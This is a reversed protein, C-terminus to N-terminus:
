PAVADEPHLHRRSVGPLALEGDHGLPEPVGAHRREVHHHRRLVRLLAVVHLAHGAAVHAVPAPQVAAYEQVRQGIRRQVDLLGRRERLPAQLVDGQPQLDAALGARAVTGVRVRLGREVELVVHLQLEAPVALPGLLRDGRQGLVVSVAHQLQLVQQHGVRLRPRRRRRVQVGHLHLEGVAAIGHQQAEAEAADRRGLVAQQQVVLADEELAHVAVAGRRGAAGGKGHLIVQLVHLQQLLKAHVKDATSVVLLVLTEQIEAVLPANEDPLLGQLPAVRAQPQLVLSVPVLHQM